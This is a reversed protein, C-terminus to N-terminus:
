NRRDGLDTLGRIKVPASAMTFKGSFKKDIIHDLFPTKGVLKQIFFKTTLLQHLNETCDNYGHREYFRQSASKQIDKNM